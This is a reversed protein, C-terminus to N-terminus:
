YCRSAESNFISFPRLACVALRTSCRNNFIHWPLFVVADRWTQSCQDGPMIHDPLNLTLRSLPFQPRSSQKSCKVHACYIGGHNM